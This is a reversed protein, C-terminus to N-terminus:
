KKSWKLGSEVNDTSLQCVVVVGFSRDLTTTATYGKYVLGVFATQLGCQERELCSLIVYLVSMAIEVATNLTNSTLSVLYGFPLTNGM